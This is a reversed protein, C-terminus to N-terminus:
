RRRPKGGFLSRVRGLAGPRAQGRGELAAVLAGADGFRRGPDKDLATAVVADLWAPTEPRVARLSEREGQVIKTVLGVVGSSEFAPRGAVCEFLIAGLAFVDAAPGADRADDIQEPAM